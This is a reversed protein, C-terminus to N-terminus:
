TSNDVISYAVSYAGLIRNLFWLDEGLSDNRAGALHAAIEHLYQSQKPERAIVIEIDPTSPQSIQSLM